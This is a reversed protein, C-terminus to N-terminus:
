GGILFNILAIIALHAPYFVYFFYKSFKTNLGREGNYLYLFPIVSIFFWDSNQLLMDITTKLDGPYVAFSTAFLFVSMALYILNRIKPKNRFIYTVLMFPIIPVAGECFFFSGVGVAAGIVIRLISFIKNQAVSFKSTFAWEAFLINLMLVGMGLTLFINNSIKTILSIAFVIGAWLFLRANYKPRDHTYIFGEVATFAFWVGVCRTILHFWGTLEAPFSRIYHLHDLVMLLAMFLKLQFANLKKM